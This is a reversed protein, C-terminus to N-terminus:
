DVDAGRLQILREVHASIQESAKCIDALPDVFESSLGASVAMEMLLEANGVVISIPNNIDHYIASLNQRIRVLEDERGVADDHGSMRQM